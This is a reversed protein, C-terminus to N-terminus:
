GGLPSLPASDAAVTGAFKNKFRLQMREWASCPGQAPLDEPSYQLFKIGKTCYAKSRAPRHMQSSACQKRKNSNCTLEMGKQPKNSLDMTESGNSSKSYDACSGPNDQAPVHGEQCEKKFEERSLACPMKSPACPIAQGGERRQRIDSILHEREETWKRKLTHVINNTGSTTFVVADNIIAHQQQSQCKQRKLVPKYKVAPMNQLVHESVLESLHNGPEVGAGADHSFPFISYDVAVKVRYACRSINQLRRCAFGQTAHVKCNYWPKACSCQWRNTKYSSKCRCCFLMGWRGGKVLTRNQAQKPTGCKPCELKFVKSPLLTTAATSIATQELRPMTFANMLFEYNRWTPVKRM